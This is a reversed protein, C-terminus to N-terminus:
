SLQKLWAHIQQMKKSGELTFYKKLELWDNKSLNELNLRLEDVSQRNILLNKRLYLYDFLAKAKTAQFIILGNLKIVKFGIFLLDQIKHYLYAGFQNSFRAPKNKTISTLNVVEETLLSHKSLVYELSLYSPSYIISALFELYAPYANKSRINDLYKQTAYMGKKLRVLKGAKEYRSFLTKLYARNKEVGVLDDLTFYPLTQVLRIIKKIKFNNGNRM